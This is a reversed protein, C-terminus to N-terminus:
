LIRLKRMPGVHWFIIWTLTWINHGTYTWINTWCLVLTDFRWIQLWKMRRLKKVAVNRWHFRTDHWQGIRRFICRGNIEVHLCIIWTFTWRQHGTCTWINSWCLGWTGFWLIQLWKVRRINQCTNRRSIWTFIWCHYWNNYWENFVELIVYWM